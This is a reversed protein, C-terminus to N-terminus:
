RSVEDQPKLRKRMIITSGNRCYERFGAKEYLRLPGTFALSSDQHQDKPYAEVFSFGEKAADECVRELLKGAIGKGRYAPAIEFCVVSKIIGMGPCDTPATDEPIDDTDFEGVRFYSLRDNANCWGVSLGDCYTLYGKITGSTVMELASERLVRKWADDDGGYEGFRTYLKEKIQKLSMNYMNCYCPYYPSGDTFARNDFFDFYDQALEPTLAKITLNM